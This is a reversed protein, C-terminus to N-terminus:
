VNGNPKKRTNRMFFVVVGGTVVVFLLIVVGARSLLAALLGSAWSGHKELDLAFLIFFVTGGICVIANFVFAVIATKSQQHDLTPM